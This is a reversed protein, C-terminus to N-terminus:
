PSVHLSVGVTVTTWAASLGDAPASVNNNYDLYFKSWLPVFHRVALTFGVTRAKGVLYEGLLGFAVYPGAAGYTPGGAISYGAGFELGVDYKRDAPLFIQLPYWTARGGVFGSGGRSSDFVNWSTAHIAAEISAHGLINWGTHMNLVFHSNDNIPQAFSNGEGSGVQLGSQSSKLKSGDISWGGYGAELGFMFGEAAHASLPAAVLLCVVVNWFFRRLM